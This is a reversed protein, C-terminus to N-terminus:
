INEDQYLLDQKLTRDRPTKQVGTRKILTVYGKNKYTDAQHGMFSSITELRSWIAEQREEFFCSSHSFISVFVTLTSINQPCPCYFGPFEQKGSDEKRQNM